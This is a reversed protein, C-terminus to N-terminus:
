HLLQSSNNLLVLEDTATFDIANIEAPGPNREAAFLQELLLRTVPLAGPSRSGVAGLFPKGM